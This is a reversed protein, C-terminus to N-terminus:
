VLAPEQMHAQATMRLQMIRFPPALREDTLCARAWDADLLAEGYRFVVNVLRGADRRTRLGLQWGYRLSRLTLARTPEPGLTSCREPFYRRLHPQLEDAFAELKPQVLVFLQDDRIDIATHRAM